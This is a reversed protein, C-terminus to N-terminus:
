GDFYGEGTWGGDISCRETQARTWAMRRYDMRWDVRWIGTNDRPVHYLRREEWVGWGRETSDHLVWRGPVDPSSACVCRHIDTGDGLSASTRNALGTLFDLQYKIAPCRFSGPIPINVKIAKALNQALPTSWQRKGFTSSCRRSVPRLSEYQFRRISQTLFHKTARNM